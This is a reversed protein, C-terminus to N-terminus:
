LAGTSTWGDHHDDDRTPTSTPAAAVTDPSTRARGRDHSSALADSATGSAVATTSIASRNTTILPARPM